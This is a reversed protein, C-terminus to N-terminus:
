EEDYHRVGGSYIPKRVKLGLREMEEELEKPSPTYDIAGTESLWEQLRCTEFEDPKNPDPAMGLFGILRAVTKGECFVLVSPLTKVQLKDVFFPAKEADIKVFKCETHQEAIMKLHHDMIKCREFESHFFHIVVHRSSTCEPLFDDQSIHRYQGHGKAMNEAKEMQKTRIEQLRRERIAQLEEDDEDLWSDYDDDDDDGDSDDVDDDKREQLEQQQKLSQMQMLEEQREQEDQAQKMAERKMAHRYAQQYPEGTPARDPDDLEQQGKAHKDKLDNMTKTLRENINDSLEKQYDHQEDDGQSFSVFPFWKDARQM